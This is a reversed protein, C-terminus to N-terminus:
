PRALDAGRNEALTIQRESMEFIEDICLLVKKELGKLTGHFKELTFASQFWSLRKRNLVWPVCKEYADLFSKALEELEERPLSRRFEQYLLSSMFEAVDYHPDGLATADFDTMALKDGRSLLQSMRFAGHIPVRPLSDSPESSPAAARIREAIKWVRDGDSPLYRGIKHADEIAENGVESVYFAESLNPLPTLHLKALARAVIPVADAMGDTGYYTSMPEGVWEEQWYTHLHDIHLTSRPIEMNGSTEAIALRADEMARYVYLSAQDGYTKSWFPLTQSTGDPLTLDAEFRLVVRKGPMYKIQQCRVEGCRTGAALGISETNAEVLKAVNEPSVVEPLHTLRPDHPFAWIVMGVEPWHTVPKWFSVAPGAKRLGREFRRQSDSLKFHRVFFWHKSEEGHADRLHVRHLVGCHKEIRYYVKEIDTGLVTFQHEPYDVAFHSEFLRSMEESDVVTRLHPLNPDNLVDRRM